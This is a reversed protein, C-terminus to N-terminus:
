WDRTVKDAEWILAKVGRLRVVIDQLRKEQCWLERAACDAGDNASNGRTGSSTARQARGFAARKRNSEVHPSAALPSKNKRPRGSPPRGLKAAASPSFHLVQGTEGHLTDIRKAFSTTLPHAGIDRSGSGVVAVARAAAVEEAVNRRRETRAEAHARTREGRTRRQTWAWALQLQSLAADFHM